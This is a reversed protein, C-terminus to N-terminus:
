KAGRIREALKFAHDAYEGSLVHKYLNVLAEKTDLECKHRTRNEKVWQLFVQEDLQELEGNDTVPGYKTILRKPTGERM